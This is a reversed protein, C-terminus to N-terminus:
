TAAPHTLPFTARVTTGQGPASEIVCSGGLLSAREQMSILGLSGGRDARSFALSPVFGRGDDSVAVELHDISALLRIQVSHAQAHRAANTLAEQVIRFCTIALAPDLRSAPEVPQFSIELGTAQGQKEILWRLAPVLGLEDLLPPRLDLSLSRVIGLLRDVLAIVEPLDSAIRTPEPSRALTQLSIKTATLAQGVEDHM